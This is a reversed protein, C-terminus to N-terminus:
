PNTNPVPRWLEYYPHTSREEGPIITKAGGDQGLLRNKLDMAEAMDIQYDMGMLKKYRWMIDLVVLDDDLVTTDTDATFREKSSGVSDRVPYKSMYELRITEGANPQYIEFFGGRIRMVIAPGTGSSSAKLYNWEADGTPVQVAWLRSNTYATDPIYHGWDAPMAYQEASTMVIEHTAVLHQWPERRLRTVSRNALNVLRLVADDTSTAYASETAVGSELLVSDIMQKLTLAM